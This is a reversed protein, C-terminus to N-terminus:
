MFSVKALTTYLCSSCQNNTLSESGNKFLKYCEFMTSQSVAGKQFAVKFIIM